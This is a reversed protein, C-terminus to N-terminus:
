ARLDRSSRRWCCAGPRTPRDVREVPGVPRGDSDFRVRVGVAARPPGYRPRRDGGGAAPQTWCRAWPRGWPSGNSSGDQRGGRRGAADRASPGLRHAPRWLSIWGVRVADEERVVVRRLYLQLLTPYAKVDAVRVGQASLQQRALAEARGNLHEGHAVYATSAALALAAAARAPRSTAGRAWGMLLAAALTLSYFVDVFAIADIAFRHPSLPALLQTGYTTCFDLLPHSLLAVFSLALWTRFREATATLRSVLAALGLAAFPVVLLSHTLGRHYTWEGMPGAFPILAMDVDPLMAGFAGWALARRGLSRGFAAQAITAGLLGHTLPDV